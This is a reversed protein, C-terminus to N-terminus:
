KDRETAIRSRAYGLKKRDVDTLRPELPELLEVVRQFDSRRFADTAETAARRDRDLSDQEKWRRMRQDRLARVRPVLASADRLITPLYTRLSDAMDRVGAAVRESTDAGGAHSAAVADGGLAEIWEWLSYSAPRPRNAISNRLASLLSHNAVATIELVTDILYERDGYEVRVRWGSGAYRVRAFFFVDDTFDATRTPQFETADWAELSEASTAGYERLFAFTEAASRFFAPCSGSLGRLRTRECM